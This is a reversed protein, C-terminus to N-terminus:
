PQGAKHDIRDRVRAYAEPTDIDEIVARESLDVLCARELHRHVVTRAGGRLDPDSLEAFLERRFLAPHGRKSAHVPLTLPAGSATAREVLGRVIEATVLAHDAPLWVLGDIDPPLMPLVMRLSTIPGEGPDPNVLTRVRLREAEARVDPKSAPVVVLVPDCGAGALADVVRELFTRGGLQLTAKPHGM